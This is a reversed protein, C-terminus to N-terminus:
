KAAKAPTQEPAQEAEPGSEAPAPITAGADIKAASSNYRKLVPAAYGWVGLRISSPGLVEEYRFNFTSSELLLMDDAKTVYLHNDNAAWSPICSLGVVEGAIHGYQTAEGLGYANQPGHYGTVVLPRGATDKQKSLFAWAGISLFVVRAPAKRHKIVSASGDIFADPLNTYVPATGPYTITAALNGATLAEFAAVVAQEIQENYAGLCDSYIISDVSPNSGDVLQRSVDVKGTYTKPSTPLVAATFSGDGAPDGENSQVGVVAGATQQGINIPNANDIPIRRLTDAWPRAGHAIAAFEEFLWTPPVVGPSNTTTGTARMQINHREIRSRSDPDGDLQAHLLDRFFSQRDGGADPPRYIEPESRVQVLAGRESSRTEPLESLAATTSSRRDETERLQIIREGLPNMESRLEVLLGDESEDPDRGEDHCRNLIADYRAFLENYDDGLRNLLRNPM